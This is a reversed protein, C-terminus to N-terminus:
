LLVAAVGSGGGGGGVIGNDVLEPALSLQDGVGSVQCVGGAVERLQWHDPASAALPKADM